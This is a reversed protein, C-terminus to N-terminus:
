KIKNKVFFNELECRNCPIFNEIYDEIDIASNCRVLDPMRCGTVAMPYKCALNHEIVDIVVQNWIRRNHLRDKGLKPYKATEYFRLVDTSM